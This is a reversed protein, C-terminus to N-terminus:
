IKEAFQKIVLIIFGVSWGSLYMGFLAGLYWLAEEWTM